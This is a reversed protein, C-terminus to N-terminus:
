VGMQRPCRLRDADDVGELGIRQCCYQIFGLQGAGDWVVELLQQGLSGTM